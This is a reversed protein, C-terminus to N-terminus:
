RLAMGVAIGIGYTIVAATTGFALQRLGSWVPHM